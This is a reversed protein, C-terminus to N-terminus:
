LTHLLLFLYLRKFYFLIAVCDNDTVTEPDKVNVSESPCWTNDNEGLKVVFLVVTSELIICVPSIKTPVPAVVIELALLM